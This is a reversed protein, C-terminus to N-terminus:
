RHQRLLKTLLNGEALMTGGPTVTEGVNPKYIGLISGQRCVASQQGDRATEIYGVTKGRRNM